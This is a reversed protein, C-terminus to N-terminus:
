ELSFALLLVQSFETPNMTGGIKSKLLEAFCVAFVEIHMLLQDGKRSYWADGQAEFHLHCEHCHGIFAAWIKM